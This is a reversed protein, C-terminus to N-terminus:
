ELLELSKKAVLGSLGLGVRHGGVAVVANPGCEKVTMTSCVPRVGQAWDVVRPLEEVDLTKKLAAELNLVYPGTSKRETTDGWRLKGMWPRLTYHVYPRVLVTLPKDIAEVGEIIMARGFLPKVGVTEMDSELLFTDTFAGMAVVINKAEYQSKDSWVIWHEGTWYAKHAKDRCRKTMDLLKSNDGIIYCDKRYRSKGTMMNRFYEGTQELGCNDQLWQLSDDVDDMTWEEPWMRQITDQRYWHACVIGASNRSAGEPNEDDILLVDMGRKRAEFATATGWFGGGLVLLDLM